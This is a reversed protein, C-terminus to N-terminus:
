LLSREKGRKRAAYVIKEENEKCERFSDYGYKGLIEFGCNELLKDIVPAEYAFESFNEEYRIYSGDSAKEFFDLTIFVRCNKEFFDNRWVCYVKKTDYVFTNNGLVTRHKYPTNIDFLFLSGPECFLSVKSVAKQLSEFGPLHNLSDSACVAVDITGFLDLETMDQNLYQIDFGGAHKKEMAANLMAVSGDVGIVDYGLRCFHESLGGTGCALDLLLSKKRRVKDSGHKKVLADFYEARKKYSIGINLEDYFNAFVDYMM